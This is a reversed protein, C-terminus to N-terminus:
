YKKIVSLLIRCLLIGPWVLMMLMLGLVLVVLCAGFAVFDDKDKNLEDKLKTYTDRGEENRCGQYIGYLVVIFGIVLYIM